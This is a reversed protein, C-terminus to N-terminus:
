PSRNAPWEVRSIRKPGSAVFLRTLCRQSNAFVDIEFFPHFLAFRHMWRSPLAEHQKTGPSQKKTICHSLLASLRKPTYPEVSLRTRLNHHENHRGAVQEPSMYVLTGILQGTRTHATSDLQGAGTAHAIGFDLVKPQGAPDIRINAPKLDRHIVGQDHAHHVAEGVRVM